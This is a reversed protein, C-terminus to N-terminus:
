FYEELFGGGILRNGIYIAVPQGAAPAWAPDSLHIHIGRPHTTITCPGEPNRGIGRIRVTVDESSLAEDMDVMNCGSIVLNRHYLDADPGAVLRNGAADIATVCYGAPLGRKQGVTYYPIGDHRGVVCGERDTIEGGRIRDGCETRLFEAYGRGRLFCIGMSERGAASAMSRKVERKIQGGMPTLAMSLTPGDLPWLYYSQDKVPDAAAAVYLRGNHEEINFYHGTAIHAFGEQLATERLVAWKIDRNCVTCPAPTRGALYESVFYGVVDRRFRERLDACRFPLGLERARERAHELQVRDGYMDMYLATVGYGGARLLEAARSSDIGGSFGLLVKKDRM